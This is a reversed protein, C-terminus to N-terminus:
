DVPLDTELDEEQLRPLEPIIIRKWIIAVLQVASDSNCHSLRTLQLATLETM